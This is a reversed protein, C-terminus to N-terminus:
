PAAKGGPKAPTTGAEGFRSLELDGGRYGLAAASRYRQKAEELRDLKELALGIRHQLIGNKPEIAAAQEFVALAQEFQELQYHIAARAYVCQFTGPYIALCREATRVAKEPQETYLYERGLNYLVRSGWPVARDPLKAAADQWLRLPSAFTTLRDHAQYLLIPVMAALLALAVRGRVCDLLAALAVAIGPAWLYSRYLVYPEQFRSVSLEVLFLVWAYLVGFGILGARGRRRVLLLALGGCAIFAGGKLASWAASATAFFDVRWDISMAAPDPWLWSALYKFFLGAQTVASLRWTLETAAHGVTAELQAGIDAVHPEYAQGVLDRMLFVVLVAAPACAALYVALHRIARRGDASALWALALALAPLLISHEKSLVALSYFAAAAATYAYRDHALGRLFLLLSLLAFLTAAVISRQLLYAAGYVAAPHLAFAGAGALACVAAQWDGHVPLRSPSSRRAVRLLEAILGYLAVAVAIHFALSVARHVAIQGSLVQTLALSFYGPLRPWLGLPHTAYYAFQRGSFFTWDDFVLPNHLFPLYLGATLAAILGLAAVHPIRTAGAGPWRQRLM